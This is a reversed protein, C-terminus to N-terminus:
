KGICFRSFVRDLIDDTYVAGVVKGLEDLATRIEAAVFEDGLDKTVFHRARRISRAARRLSDRCRVVTGAVARPSHPQSELCVAIERRLEDLGVGRRSSTEIARAHGELPRAEDCKTWVVIRRSCPLEIQQTEWPDLPRTADLCLLELDANEMQGARVRQAESEVEQRSSHPERLGATDVLRLELSDIHITRQVYDRTTGEHHSVIAADEEALANFLSSKGVNPRGTLVVRPSGDREASGSLRKQIEAVGRAIRELSLRVERRSVFELDEDAFDLAAELHAVLELLEERMEALPAALGGAMQALAAKLDGASAADIVGLVAEAQTLDIRGALFARLTFEGPEALRAGASCLAELTADLVPRSGCTHIEVSPQRTYSRGDPWVCLNATVLGLPRPLRVCGALMAASRIAHWAIESDGEFCRAAVRVADPGSLRLIGRVAGGEASAIAAITDETHYPM